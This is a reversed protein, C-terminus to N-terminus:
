VYLGSVLHFKCSCGLCLAVYRANKRFRSIPPDFANLLRNIVHKDTTKRLSFIEFIQRKTQGCVAVSLYRRHRSYDEWRNTFAVYFDNIRGRTGVSILTSTSCFFLTKNYSLLSEQFLRAFRRGRTSKTLLIFLLRHLLLKYCFYFIHLLKICHTKSVSRNLNSPIIQIAKKAFQEKSSPFIKQIPFKLKQEISRYKCCRFTGKEVESAM